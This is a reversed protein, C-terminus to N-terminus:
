STLVKLSSIWYRLQQTLNSPDDPDYIIVPLGALAGPLKSGSNRAALIMIPKRLADAYGLEYMVNSDPKSLDVIIVQALYIEDAIASAWVAGPSHAPTVPEFGASALSKRIAEEANKDQASSLILARPAPM